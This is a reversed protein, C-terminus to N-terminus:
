PVENIVPRCPWNKMFTNAAREREQQRIVKDLVKQVKNDFKNEQPIDDHDPCADRLDVGGAAAYGRM